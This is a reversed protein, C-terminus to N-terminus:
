DAGSASKLTGNPTAYSGPRLGNREISAAAERFTYHYAVDAGAEEAAVGARKLLPLSVLDALHRTNAGAPSRLMLSASRSDGLAFGTPHDYSYIARVATTTAANALAGGAGLVTVALAAFTLLRLVREPWARSEGNL